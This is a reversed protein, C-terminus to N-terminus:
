TLLSFKHGIRLLEVYLEDDRFGEGGEAAVVSAAVMRQFQLRRLRRLESGLGRAQTVLEAISAPLSSSLRAAMSQVAAAKVAVTPCSESSMSTAAKSSDTRAVPAGPLGGRDGTAQSPTSTAIQSQVTSSASGGSRHSENTLRNISDRLASRIISSVDSGTERRINEIHAVQSNDLRVTIRRPVAM